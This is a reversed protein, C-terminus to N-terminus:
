GKGQWINDRIYGFAPDDEKRGNAFWDQVISAQQEANYSNWSQGLTYKYADQGATLQHWVSNAVYGWQVTKNHGQWVHTLEHVLIQWFYDWGYKAALKDWHQQTGMNVDWAQWDWITYNPLTYPRDGLGINPTIGILDYPLTDKFVFGLVWKETDTLGRAGM